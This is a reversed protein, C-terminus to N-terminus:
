VFLLFWINSLKLILAVLKNKANAAVSNQLPLLHKTLLGM